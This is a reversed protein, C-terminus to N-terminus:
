CLWKRTDTRVMPVFAVPLVKHLDLRGDEGKVCLYLEQAEHQRGIPVVLRGGPRTQEVLAEPMREPAATVIVADFPAKEPWGAYGDGHCVQVTDYGLRLLRERAACALEEVREVTFVRGALEALVAAQYGCGAGIELVRDTKKLDLLDTMLAVIYPQSITQGHGIARPRNVYANAEDGKRVFAHRPVRAMAEMVAPSFAARGTYSRTDRAEAAITDFLRRRADELEAESPGKRSRPFRM